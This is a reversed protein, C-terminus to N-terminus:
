IVCCAIRMVIKLSDFFVAGFDIAQFWVAQSRRLFKPAEVEKGRFRGPGGDKVAVEVDARLRSDTRTGSNAGVAFFISCGIELAVFIIL